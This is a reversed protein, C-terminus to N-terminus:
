QKELRDLQVLFEARFNNKSMAESFGNESTMPEERKLIELGRVEDLVQKRIEQATQNPPPTEEIWLHRPFYSGYVSCGGVPKTNDIGCRACIQM